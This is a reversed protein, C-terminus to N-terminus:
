SAEHQCPSLAWALVVSKLRPWLARFVLARSYLKERSTYGSHLMASTSAARCSMLLHSTSPLRLQGWIWEQTCLRSGASCASHAGQPQRYGSRGQYRCGAAPAQQHYPMCSCGSLGLGPMDPQINKGRRLDHLLQQGDHELQM